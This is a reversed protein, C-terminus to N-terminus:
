RAGDGTPTPYAAKAGATRRYESPTPELGPRDPYREAVALVRPDDLVALRGAEYVTAGGVQLTATRTDGTIHLWYPSTRDKPESGIHVHINSTHAHEILRRYNM